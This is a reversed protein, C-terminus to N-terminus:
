PYTVTYNSNKLDQLSVDRRKLVKYSTRVTEFGYKALTDNSFFFISLTDAPLQSFFEEWKEKQDFVKEESPKLMLLSHEQNPIVTDPYTQSILYSIGFGANNKIWISYVREAGLPKECGSATCAMSTILLFISRIMKKM